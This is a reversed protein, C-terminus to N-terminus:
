SVKCVINTSLSCKIKILSVNKSLQIHISFDFTTKMENKFIHYQTLVDFYQTTCIYITTKLHM